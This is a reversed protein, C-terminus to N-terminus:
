CRGILVYSQLVAAVCWLLRTTRTTQTPPSTGGGSILDCPTNTKTGSLPSQDTPSLHACTLASTQFCSSSTKNLLFHFHSLLQCTRPEDTQKKPLDRRAQNRMERRSTQAPDSRRRGAAILLTEDWRSSVAFLLCRLASVAARLRSAVRRRPSLQSAGNM